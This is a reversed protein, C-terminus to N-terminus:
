QLDKFKEDMEEIVIRIQEETAGKEKLYQAVYTAWRTGMAEDVMSMAMKYYESTSLSQAKETDELITYGKAVAQSKSMYEVDSKNYFEKLADIVKAIDSQDVGKSQLHKIAIEKWNQGGSEVEQRIEDFLEKLLRSDISKKMSKRPGVEEPDRYFEEHPDAKGQNYESQCANCWGNNANFEQASISRGCEKCERTDAKEMCPTVKTREVKAKGKWFNKFSKVM